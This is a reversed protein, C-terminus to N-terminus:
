YRNYPLIGIKKAKELVEYDFSSNLTSYHKYVEEYQILLGKEELLSIIYSLKFAVVGTNWLAHKGIICISGFTTFLRHFM